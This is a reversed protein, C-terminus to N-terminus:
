RVVDVNISISSCNPQFLKYSSHNRQSLLKRFLHPKFTSLNADIRCYLKLTVQFELPSADCAEWGRAADPGIPEKDTLCTILSSFNGGLSRIRICIRLEWEPGVNFFAALEQRKSYSRTKEEAQGAKKWEAQHRM